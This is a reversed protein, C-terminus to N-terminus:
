PTFTRHIAGTGTIVFLKDPGIAAEATANDTYEPLASLDFVITDGSEFTIVLDGSANGVATKIKACCYAKEVNKIMAPSSGSRKFLGM